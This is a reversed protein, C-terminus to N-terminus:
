RRGRLKALARRTTEDSPDLEAAREFQELAKDALGADAYLLGLTRRCTANRSTRAVAREALRTARVLDQGDQRLANALRECLSPDDPRRDLAKEYSSVAESWRAEKEEFRARKIYAEAVLARAEDLGAEARRRDGPEEAFELALRFFNTASVADGTALAQMASDLLSASKTAAILSRVSTRPAIPQRATLVGASEGKSDIPQRATLM